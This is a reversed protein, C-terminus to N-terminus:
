EPILERKNKKGETKAKETLEQKWKKLRSIIANVEQLTTQRHEKKLKLLNSKVTEM